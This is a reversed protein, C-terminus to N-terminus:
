ASSIAAHTHLGYKDERDILDTVFGEPLSIPCSGSRVLGVVGRTNNVRSWSDVALDLFIFFYGPFLPASVVETRRAHRRTRTYEPLYSEFGQRSLHGLARRENRPRTQIAYWRKM